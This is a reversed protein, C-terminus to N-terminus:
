IENWSTILFGGGGGLNGLAEDYHFNFHGNISVNNVVAAGVTDYTDKGGGGLDFNANPAYIVGTYAANGHLRLTTNSPLGYYFFNTASANANALGQGAFSATAGGCYLQLRAGPAIYILSQGTMSIDGTVYFVANGNVIAKNQGSMSFSSLLYNGTALVYTYNTGGVTGSTPTFYGGTFPASVDPFSVNMDSSSWGPQIGTGGGNIFSKSGIAASGSMSITGGAGTNAHGYVKANQLAICNPTGLNSAIDGNDKSKAADYRGNTSYNTNASDFSDIKLNWSGSMGITGKAVLGKSFLGSRSTTVRVTRSVYGNGSPLRVNGTSEITPQNANTSIGVVYYDDGLYRTLTYQNGVLSWGNSALNNTAHLQAMGEEIGAEAVPIAAHWLQARITNTYQSGALPLYSMLMIGLLTCLILTLPIIQGSNAGLRIKM